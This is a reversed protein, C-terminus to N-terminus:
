RAELKVILRPLERTVTLWVTACDVDDYVHALRNRMAIMKSWPVDPYRTRAGEPMRRAAEGIVMLCRVVQDQAGVDHAFEDLAVSQLYAVARSAYVIIDALSDESDRM